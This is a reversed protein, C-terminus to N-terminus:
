PDLALKLPHSTKNMNTGCARLLLFANKTFPSLKRCTMLGSFATMHLLSVQGATRLEDIQLGLKKKEEEFESCAREFKATLEEILLANSKIINDKQSDAHGYNDIVEQLTKLQNGHTDLDQQHALQTALAEGESKAVQAMLSEKETRLTEIQSAHASLKSELLSIEGELHLSRDIIEQRESQLIKLQSGVNADSATRLRENEYEVADLRSQLQEILNLDDTGTSRFSTSSGPRSSSSRLIPLKERDHIELKKSSNEETSPARNLLHKPSPPPPMAVASPIRGRATFQSRAPSSGGVHSPRGLGAKPTSFPSGPQYTPSPM